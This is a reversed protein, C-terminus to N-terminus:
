IRAQKIMTKFFMTYCSILEFILSVLQVGHGNSNVDNITLIKRRTRFTKRRQDNACDPDDVSPVDSWM